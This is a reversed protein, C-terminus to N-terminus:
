LHVLTRSGLEVQDSYLLDKKQQFAIESQIGFSLITQTGPIRIDTHESRLTM